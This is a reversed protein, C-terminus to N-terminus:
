SLRTLMVDNGSGGVYSIQFLMGILSFTAGEALGNFTGIVSDTGDNDIITFSQGVIPSFGLSVSLTSGGLNVTGTASVQDYDSGATPGNIEVLYTSGALYNVNGTHLTGTSDGPNLTGGAQVQVAGISGIGGLTGGTKVIVASGTQVGDIRLLGANITTSGTYSNNGSLVLTGAGAKVFARGAADQSINGSITTLGTNTVTITRTATLTAPGALTLDFSGSVTFNGLTVANALVHAAADARMAGGLMTIAGSGAATNSGIAFTGSNLQYGGNFTNNDSLLLTGSGTQTLKFSGGSQGIAGSFTTLATNDVQVTRNGTLTGTGMFTLDLSGGFITTGNFSVANNLSRAGGDARVTCSVLTLLGSGAATNSGVFFTGAAVTLGGSFTNNGSLKLSGNGTKSLKYSGGSEGINGSFTTLGTSNVTLTRNLTLTAPGTFTLDLSGAITTTGNLVLTNGFTRAAGDSQITATQMTFTGSGLGNNNGIALTGANLLFGGSFTNNGSLRLTGAGAKSLKFSGGSEGINGSFTTLGTNTTTITRNANLTAPGSFTLNLSGGFTTNGSLVVANSLTRAATDAQITATQLTLTGTGVATNSGLAMVGASLLTGGVYSNNGSLLLSGAGKKWLGGSGSITNSFSISGLSDPNATLLVDAVTVTGGVQLSSSAAVVFAQGLTTLTIPLNLANAGTSNAVGASNLTVSNGSIAYGGGSFSISHFNTGAVLNNTNSLRAAGSPFILDDGAAPLTDNAWNAATSWNNDAGGGDWTSQNLVVQPKASDKDSSMAFFLDSNYIATIIHTGRSLASTSFTAIGSANLPLQALSTKGEMFTVFGTPPGFGMDASSVTATFTVAQGPTSPNPSSNLVTISGHAHIKQVLTVQGPSFNPDGNYIATIFHQDATLSSTTFSAHGMGDLPVNSALTTTVTQLVGGSVFHITDQFTVTGTPAMGSSGINAVTATFTLSQGVVVSRMDANSSGISVDVSNSGGAPFNVTGIAFMTGGNLTYLTGDPGVSSPVYPEGIGSLLEITQALSNSILNWRYLRGDESDFFISNTAPNVAAANICWERVANPYTAGVHEEDPTPGVVTLVERMEIINNPAPHPDLQTANPDLLTVKNVGDGDALTYNNYKAFILYSSSGTYSPAMSAPVIAPTYDWGFGGPTKAVSLNGSFRLLFGRSGTGSAYVGIYVDGDPAVTPSATSDDLIIANNGNRPDKLLVSYKTSLNASDLGVLYGGGSPGNKILVYLTSQDNSLAPASNHSDLPFGSQINNALVYSGTGDLAIRAFGSSTSNIPAPATGQVRFGFFVIGASDATLPTDIFVTSDFSNSYTGYFAVRVPDGHSDSDPNDVYWVSGGAGAYYLRTGFAGTAIVPQYVPIWGFEPLSPLIYDTTLTYKFSGNTGDFVNVQFGNTATKVPVIVSNAASVLPAGYHAPNGSNNLDIDTFWHFVNLDQAPTDYISTHQANGAFSPVSSPVIRDELNELRPRFAPRRLPKREKLTSWAM